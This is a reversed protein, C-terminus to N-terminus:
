AVEEVFTKACHRLKGTIFFTIPWSTLNKRSVSAANCERHVDDSHEALRKSRPDM